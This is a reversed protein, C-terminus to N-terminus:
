GTWAEAEIEVLAADDILRAVEVLTNPPRTDAFTPGMVEAIQEWRHICTTYIRVRTVQELGCDLAQLAVRTREIALRTQAQLTDPYTGNADIGVCGAVTIMPGSKMARSYGMRAEWPSGSDIRSRGDSLEIRQM